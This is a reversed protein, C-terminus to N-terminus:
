RGATEGDTEEIQAPQLDFCRHILIDNKHGGVLFKERIRDTILDAQYKTTNIVLLLYQCSSYRAYVDGIRLTDGIIEGLQEMLVDREYLSPPDKEKNVVTILIM